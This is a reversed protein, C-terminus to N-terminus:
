IFQLLSALFSLDANERRSAKQYCFFTVGLTVFVCINCVYVRVSSLIDYIISLKKERLSAVHLDHM